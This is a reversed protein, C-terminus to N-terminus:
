STMDSILGCGFPQFVEVWLITINDPAVNEHQTNNYCETEKFSHMM